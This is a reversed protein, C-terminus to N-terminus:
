ILSLISSRLPGVFNPLQEFDDTVFIRKNDETILQLQPLSHERIGVAFLEIGMGRAIRVSTTLFVLDSAPGDTIVAIARRTCLDGFRNSAPFDILVAKEIAHATFASYAHLSLGQLAGQFGEQTRFEGVNVITELYDQDRSTLQRSSYWFSYQMVGVFIKSLDFGSVVNKVFNVTKDFESQTMSDSGDLLFMVDLDYTMCGYVDTTSQQNSPATPSVSLSVRSVDNCLSSSCCSVACDDVDWALETRAQIIETLISCTSVNCTRAPVCTGFVASGQYTKSTINQQKNHTALSSASLTLCHSEAPCKMEYKLEVTSTGNADGYIISYCKSAYPPTLKVSGRFGRFHLTADSTFIIYLANTKSTYTRPIDVSHRIEAVLPSNKTKGDRIQLEDFDKEVRLDHLKFVVQGNPDPSLILWHCEANAPYAYPYGPSFMEMWDNTAEYTFGCADTEFEEEDPLLQATAFFGNRVITSDTLFKMTVLNTTSKLIRNGALREMRLASILRMNAGDSVAVCDCCTEMQVDWFDIMIKRGEPAEIIWTCNSDNPYNDPYNPSMLQVTQNSLPINIYGCISGPSVTSTTTTIATTEPATIPTTKKPTTTITSTTTAMTTANTTKTTAVNPLILVFTANFGAFRHSDDSSFNLFLQNGTTRFSRFAISGSLIVADSDSDDWVYARDCCTETMFSTFNLQIQGGAPAHIKWNCLSNNPYLSPWNPTALTQPELLAYKEFGCETRNEIEQTTENAGIEPTPVSTYTARFGKRQDSSDSQFVLILQQGTSRYKQGAFTGRLRDIREGEEYYIEVSDCCPETVVEEIILEINTFPSTQISWLCNLSPDYDEPWNPSIIEQTENTALLEFECIEAPTTSETTTPVETPPIGEKFSFRLGAFSRTSDSQFRVRLVRGSSSFNRPTDVAGSVQGLSTNGSFVELFDFISETQGEIVSFLVEMNETTAHIIWNCQLQLPYEAPWGPTNIYQYSSTADLEYDCDSPLPLPPAQGLQSLTVSRFVGRYGKGNVSSDSKFNITLIQGVDSLYTRPQLINGSLRDLQREGAAIEVADCCTETSIRGITFQIVEGDAPLIRWICNARNPYRDPYEPSNLDVTENSVAVIDRGCNREDADSSFSPITVPALSSTTPAPTTPPIIRMYTAQFGKQVITNDSHFQLLFRTSNSVYAISDTSTGTVRAVLKDNEKIDLYDCCAEISTFLVIFEIVFGEPAEITWECNIGTPYNEPWKPSVLEKGTATAELKEGCLADLSLPPYPPSDPVSRFVGQFGQRNVSIDSRFEIRFGESTSSTFSFSEFELRGRLRELRRTGDYIEVYDCCRETDIKGITFQVVHGVPAGIRWTCVARSPYHSPHNPSNLPSPYSPAEAITFGCTDPAASTTSTTTTTTTTSVTTTIESRLRAQYILRFGRFTISDDSIFNLTVYNNRSAITQSLHRGAFERIILSSDNTEELSDYITLKDCCAQSTFLSFRFVILYGEPATVSWWCNQSTPYNRPYNPSTLFQAANIRAIRSRQGCSGQSSALPIVIALFLLSSCVLYMRLM